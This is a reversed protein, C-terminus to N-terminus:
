PQSLYFGEEGDKPYLPLRQGNYFDRHFEWMVLADGGCGSNSPCDFDNDHWSVASYVRECHLCWFARAKSELFPHDVVKLSKIKILKEMKGRKLGEGM